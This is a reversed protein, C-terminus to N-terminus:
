DDGPWGLMSAYMEVNEFELKSEGIREFIVMRYYLNSSKTANATVRWSTIRYLILGMAAVLLFTFIVDEDAVPAGATLAVLAFLGYGGYIVIIITAGAQLIAWPITRREHRDSAEGSAKSISRAYEMSWSTGAKHREQLAEMIFLTEFDPEADRETAGSKIKSVFTIVLALTGAIAGIAGWAISWDVQGSM